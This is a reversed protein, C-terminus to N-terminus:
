RTRWAMEAHKRNVFELGHPAPGVINVGSFICVSGRYLALDGDKAMGVPVREFRADLIKEIGGHQKLVRLAERMTKWGAVGVLHDRGTSEKVWRAAFLVCDNRGWEFPVDLHATIYAQLNM